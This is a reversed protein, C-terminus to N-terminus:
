GPEIMVLASRREGSNVWGQERFNVWRYTHEYFNVWNVLRFLAFLM